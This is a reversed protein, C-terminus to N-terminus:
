VYQLSQSEFDAFNWPIGHCETYKKYPIGSLMAYCLMRFIRFYFFIRFEMDFFNRTSPIGHRRFETSVWSYMKNILNYVYQVLQISRLFIVKIISM